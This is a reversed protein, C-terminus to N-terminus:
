KKNEILCIKKIQKKVDKMRGLIINKHKEAQKENGYFTIEWIFHAIIDEFSYHSITDHSIPMNVLKKWPIFSISWHIKEIDNQKIMCIGYGTDDMMEKVDNLFKQVREPHETYFPTNLDRGGYIKLKENPRVKIKPMKGLRYFLKEYNNHDTAYHYRLARKVEIWNICPILDRITLTIKTPM